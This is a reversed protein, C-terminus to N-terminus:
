DRFKSKPHLEKYAKIAEDGGNMSIIETYFQMTEHDETKETEETEFRAQDRELDRLDSDKKPNVAKKKLM